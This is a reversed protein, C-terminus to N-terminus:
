ISIIKAQLKRYLWTGIFLLAITWLAIYRYDVFRDDLGVLYYGHIMEMFHIIPNYLLIEQAFAPLSVLPYFIASFILLPFSILNILKGVSAYFTNGIAVILGFSFAFISLWAYAFLVMLINKPVIDYELIFGVFLFISTIISTIFISIMARALITDIPKVQKYIFLGQNAIFAGSASNVINRYMNFAIFGSAMFVAYDYSSSSSSEGSSYGRIATHLAVFLLVQFFPEFFTWFLGVKGVSISMNLERLFLAKEVAFFIRLTKREIM